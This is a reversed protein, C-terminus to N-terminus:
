LPFEWNVHITKSDLDVSVIAEKTYPVLKEEDGDRIMLVDNAGTALLNDVIGLTTGHQDIVTMGILDSWYYEGEELTPLAEAPVAIDKNTYNKALERDNCGQIRGIIDNGQIKVTDMDLQQWQGKNEILWPQYSLINEPPDTFSIVHIDGRVGHVRGFRGVVIPDSM